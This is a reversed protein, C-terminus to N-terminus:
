ASHIHAMCVLLLVKTMRNTNVIVNIKETLTQGNIEPSKLFGRKPDSLVM